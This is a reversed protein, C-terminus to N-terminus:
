GIIVWKGGKGAGDRRIIGKDKLNDIHKQITSRSINTAISLQTISISNNKSISDLIKDVTKIKTGSKDDITGSKMGSETGSKQNARTTDLMFTFKTKDITTEFIVENGTQKKWQLMKDFGYGASECLKSIRFFKALVPNRPLTEDTKMLEEVTRPLKGPNEFEIRNTFVRIRPKMPSFYDTHILLNVLAERLAEIEKTDEHGIGMEGITLPNNAYIRLRQFLVFYYEWLNEQEEVRFTYRPEADAYSIAPIELYDVRFDSFHDTIAANTGLFLLGGYTLKGDTVIKLRQNFEDDEMSNYHLNPNFGKLYERFRKYSAKNLLDASTGEVTKESMSGFAQDRYLANIEFEGAQQDGSGTRIFTNQVGNFYVPKIDSSPIYFALINKGDIKYRTAHPSLKINFKTKSRLTTLMDNELKEPDVVGVIEFAKNKQSVGFVIWGGSTNSFASVTEWVGKPVDAKATKVEFNDWEIDHLHELLKQKTMSKSYEKKQTKPMYKSNQVAFNCIKISYLGRKLPLINPIEGKQRNGFVIIGSL